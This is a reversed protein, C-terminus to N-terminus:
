HQKRKQSTARGNAQRHEAIDRDQRSRVQSQAGWPGKIFLFKQADQMFHPWHTWTHGTSAMLSASMLSPKPM